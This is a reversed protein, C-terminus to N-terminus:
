RCFSHLMSKNEVSMQNKPKKKQQIIKETFGKNKQYFKDACHELGDKVKALCPAHIKYEAFRCVLTLVATFQHSTITCQSVIVATCNMDVVNTVVVSV